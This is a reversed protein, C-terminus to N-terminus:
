QSLVTQKAEMEIFAVDNVSPYIYSESAMTHRKTGYGDSNINKMRYVFRM